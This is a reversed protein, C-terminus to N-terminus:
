LLDELHTTLNGFQGVLKGHCLVCLQNGAYEEVLKIIVECTVWFSVVEPINTIFVDPIDM